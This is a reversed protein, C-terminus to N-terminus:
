GLLVWGLSTYGWYGEQTITVGVVNSFYYIKGVIPKAPLSTFKEPKDRNIIATEMRTFQRVLYARLDSALSTPPLEM